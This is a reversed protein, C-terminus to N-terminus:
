YVPKLNAQWSAYTYAALLVLGLVFAVTTLVKGWRDITELKGSIFKQQEIGSGDGSVRLSDDEATAIWKRYLALCPVGLALAGWMALYFTWNM